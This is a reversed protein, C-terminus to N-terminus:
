LFFYFPIGLDSLQNDAKRPPICCDFGSSKVEKLKEISHHVCIIHDLPGKLRCIFVMELMIGIEVYFM